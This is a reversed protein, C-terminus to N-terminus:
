MCLDKLKRFKTSKAPDVKEDSSGASSCEHNVEDGPPVEDLDTTKRKTAEADKKANGPAGNRLMAKTLAM